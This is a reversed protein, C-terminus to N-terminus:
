LMSTVQKISSFVNKIIVPIMPPNKIPPKHPATGSAIAITFFFSMQPIALIIRQTAQPIINATTRFFGANRENEAAATHVTM